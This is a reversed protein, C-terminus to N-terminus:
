KERAIEKIVEIVESQEEFAMNSSSPFCVGHHFLQEDTRYGIYRASEYLPQMHMPKWLRRTEIGMDTFIKCYKAVNFEPNGFDILGVTLWRSHNAWHAEPMFLINCMKLEEAYRAAIKKRSNVHAHLYELQGLGIAAPVNGLRYNFGYESHQYHSARDRAQTSLFRAKDAIKKDRTILAGGGGTTIMKNGNFSLISVKGAYGAAHNKYLAGMSEAADIILSVGYKWCLAELRNYDCPQGYLDTAIIVKPLKNKKARISLQEELLDISITWSDPDLDFFVPTAGVYNVPFVGGAFTMSSLWVEEREELNEMHLALHLAATGSSLGVCHVNNGIYQSLASEFADLQPGVPAIYNSRFAEAVYAEEQGGMHPKSLYIRM